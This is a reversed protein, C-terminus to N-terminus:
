GTCEVVHTHGIDLTFREERIDNMPFQERHNRNTDGKAVSEFVITDVDAHRKTGKPYVSPLNHAAAELDAVKKKLSKFKYTRTQLDVEELKFPLVANEQRVFVGYEEGVRLDDLGLSKVYDLDAVKWRFYEKSQNGNPDVRRLLIDGIKLHDGSKTLSNTTDDYQAKSDTFVEIVGKSWLRSVEIHLMSELDKITIEVFGQTPLTNGLQADTEGSAPIFVDEFGTGLHYRLMAIWRADLRVIQAREFASGGKDFADRSEYLKVTGGSRLVSETCHIVTLLGTPGGGVVIMSQPTIGVIKVMELKKWEPDSPTYKKKCVFPAYIKFESNYIYYTKGPELDGVQVDAQDFRQAEQLMNLRANDLEECCIQGVVALRRLATRLFSFEMFANYKFKHGHELELNMYCRQARVISEGVPIYRKFKTGVPDVYDIFRDVGSDTHVFHSSGNETKGIYIYVGNTDKDELWYWDDKRLRKKSVTEGMSLEQIAENLYERRIERQLLTKVRGMLMQAPKSDILGFKVLEMLTRKDRPTTLLLANRIRRESVLVGPNKGQLHLLIAQRLEDDSPTKWSVQTIVDYGLRLGVEVKTVEKYVEQAEEELLKCSKKIADLWSYLPDAIVAIGASLELVINDQM